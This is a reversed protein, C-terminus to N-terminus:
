GAGRQEATDSWQISKSPGAAASYSRLSDETMGEEGPKTTAVIAPMGRISGRCITVPAVDVLTNYGTRLQISCNNRKRLFVVDLNAVGKRDKSTSFSSSSWM